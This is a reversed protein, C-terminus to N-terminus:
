QAEPPISITGPLDAGSSRFAKPGVGATMTQLCVRRLAREDFPKAVRPLARFEEPFLTEDDCGTTLVVPVGREILLPLVEFVQRGRLNVDVLAGDLRESVAARALERVDSIPGIVECGFEQLLLELNLAILSEDEALLIRLNALEHIRQM